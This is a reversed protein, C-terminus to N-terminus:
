PKRAYEGRMFLSFDAQGPFRNQITFEYRDGMWRFVYRSDGRPTSRSLTVTDGEWSGGAPGEPPISMSDFWLWLAERTQPDIAFAGHGRFAVAGDKIETYDQTLAMGDAVVRYVGHGRAMGGPGWPSPELREDGEWEGGPRALLSHEPGPKPRDMEQPL